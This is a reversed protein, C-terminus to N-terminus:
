NGFKQVSVYTFNVEFITFNSPIPPPTNVSVRMVCLCVFYLHFIVQYLIDKQTNLVSTVYRLLPRSGNVFQDHNQKKMTTPRRLSYLSSFNNPYLKWQHSSRLNQCKVFWNFVQLTSVKTDSKLISDFFFSSNCYPFELYYFFYMFGLLYPYRCIM